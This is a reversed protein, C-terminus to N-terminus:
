EKVPGIGFSGVAETDITFKIDEEHGCKRCKEGMWARHDSYVTDMPGGCEPCGFMKGLDVYGDTIPGSM